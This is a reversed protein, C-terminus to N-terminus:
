SNVTKGDRVLTQYIAEIDFLNYKDSGCKITVSARCARDLHDIAFMVAEYLTLDAFQEELPAGRPDDRYPRTVWSITAQSDYDIMAM